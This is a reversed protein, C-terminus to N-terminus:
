GYNAFNDIGSTSKPPELEPYRGHLYLDTAKAVDSMGTYRADVKRGSKPKPAWSFAPKSQNM